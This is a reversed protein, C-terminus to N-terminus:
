LNARLRIIEERWENVAELLPRVRRRQDEADLPLRRLRDICRELHAVHAGAKDLVEAMARMYRYQNEYDRRARELLGNYENARTDRTVGGYNLAAISLCMGLNAVVHAFVEPDLQEREALAREVPVFFFKTFSDEKLWTDDNSYYVAMHAGAQPMMMLRDLRSMLEEARGFVTDWFTALHMAKGFDVFMGDRASDLLLNWEADFWPTHGFEKYVDILKSALDSQQIQGEFFESQAHAVLYPGRRDGTPMPLSLVVAPARFAAAGVLFVYDAFPVDERLVLDLPETLAPPMRGERGQSRWLEVARRVSALRLDATPAERVLRSLLSMAHDPEVEAALIATNVLLPETYEGQLAHELIRLADESRNLSRLAFAELNLCEDQYVEETLTPALADGLAVAASWEGAWVLGVMRQLDCWSAFAPNQSRDDDSPITGVQAIPALTPWVTPDALVATPVRVVAGSAVEKRFSDVLTLLELAAQDIREPDPAKGDLVDLLALYHTVTPEGELSLLGTRDRNLFCRRALEPTHGVSRLDDESLAGANVRATLYRAPQEPLLGAAVSSTFAGADILDDLLPVPLVGLSAIASDVIQGRDLGSSYVSAAVWAPCGGAPPTTPKGDALDAFATHWADAADTWGYGRMLSVGASVGDVADTSILGRLEAAKPLGADVWASTVPMWREAASALSLLYPALLDVRAEYGAQPLMLLSLYLENLDGHAAAQHSKIWAKESASLDLWDFIATWGHQLSENALRRRESVSSAVLASAVARLTADVWDEKLSTQHQLALFIRGASSLTAPVVDLAPGAGEALVAVEPEKASFHLVLESGRDAVCVGKRSMVLKRRQTFIL